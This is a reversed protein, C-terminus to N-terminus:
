ANVAACRGQADRSWPIACEWRAWLGRKTQSSKFQRAGHACDGPYPATPPAAPAAAPVAPASPPTFGGITSVPAQVPPAAVPIQAAINAVAQGPTMSGGFAAAYDGLFAAAGEGLVAQANAQFEAFTDGRLTFLENRAGKVTASFPSEAPM